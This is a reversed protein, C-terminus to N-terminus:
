WSINIIYDGAPIHGDRAMKTLMTGVYCYSAHGNKIAEDFDGQEYESWDDVDVDASLTSDNAMELFEFREVDARDVLYLRKIENALDYIGIEHIPKIKIKLTM